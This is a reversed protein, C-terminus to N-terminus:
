GTVQLLRPVHDKNPNAEYAQYLRYREHAVWLKAYTRAEIAEPATLHSNDHRHKCSKSFACVGSATFTLCLTHPNHMCAPTVPLPTAPQVPVVFSQRPPASGGASRYLTLNQAVHSLYNQHQHNAAVMSDHEDQMRETQIDNAIARVHQDQMHTDMHIQLLELATVDAPFPRKFLLFLFDQGLKALLEYENPRHKPYIRQSTKCIDDWAFIIAAFLERNIVAGMIELLRRIVDTRMVLHDDHLRPYAKLIVGIAVAQSFGHESLYVGGILKLATPYDFSNLPFAEHVVLMLASEFDEASLNAAADLTNYIDLSYIQRLRQMMAKLKTTESSPRPVVNVIVGGVPLAPPPPPAGRATIVAAIANIGLIVEPSRRAPAILAQAIGFAMLADNNGPLNTADAMARLANVDTACIGGFGLAPLFCDHSMEGLNFPPDM